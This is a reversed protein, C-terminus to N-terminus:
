MAPAGEEAKFKRPKLPEAWKTVRELFQIIPKNDDTLYIIDELAKQSNARGTAIARAKKKVFKDSPNLTAKGLRIAKGDNVMIGAYTVIRNIMKNKVKKTEKGYFIFPQPEQAIAVLLNTGNPLAPKVSKKM